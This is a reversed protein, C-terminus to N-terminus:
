SLGNQRRFRAYRMLHGLAKFGMEAHEIYYIDKSDFFHRGYDSMERYILPVFPKEGKEILPMFSSNVLSAFEDDESTPGIALSAVLGINPDAALEALTKDLGTMFGSGTVDLPNGPMAFPPLLEKLKAVTSAELSPLSIDYKNSLDAYIGCLGGSLTCLGVGDSKPLPVRSLIAATEILESISEVRIIGHQAFFGDAIMDNGALAGTHSSAVSAAKASRGVKIMVIPIGKAAAEQAVKRLKPVNRFGEMFATIVRTQGDQVMYEMIDEATMCVENGSTVFLSLGLGRQILRTALADSVAGSQGVLGVHGPKLDCNFPTNGFAGAGDSFNIFGLCNPGMMVIDNAECYAQMEDQLKQGEPGTEAFGSSIMLVNLIGKAKLKALADMVLGANLMVVAFDIKGDPLDEITKYAPLGFVEASKPNVPLIDGTFGSKRANQVVNGFWQNNNSAGVVTICQPTFFSKLRQHDINSV